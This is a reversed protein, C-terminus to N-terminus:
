RDPDVRRLETVRLIAAAPDTASPIREAVSHWAAAAETLEADLGAGKPFLAVSGPGLFPAAMPFLRALPAFARASVVDVRRPPLTEVRRNEVSARLALDRVATALFACKRADSDVLTVHLTPRRDAAIAAIVLGPFGGGSGLDLWDSASAPALDFLQASDLTHRARLRALDGPAVLNIRPSWRRVLAELADLRDTTERSVPAPNGTM